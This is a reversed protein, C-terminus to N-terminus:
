KSKSAYIEKLAISLNRYKFQLGSAVLKSNSVRSGELIVGAMEGLILRLLFGPVNLNWFPRHIIKAAIKM